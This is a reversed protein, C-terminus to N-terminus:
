IVYLSKRKLNKLDRTKLKDSLSCLLLKMKHCSILSPASLQCRDISVTLYDIALRFDDISFPTVGM